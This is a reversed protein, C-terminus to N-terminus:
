ERRIINKGRQYTKEAIKTKRPKPKSNPPDQLKQENVHKSRVTARWWDPMVSRCKEKLKKSCPENSSEEVSMKRKIGIIPKM